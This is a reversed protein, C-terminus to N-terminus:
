SDDAWDLALAEGVRGACKTVGSPVPSWPCTEEGEDFPLDTSIKNRVIKKAKGKSINM